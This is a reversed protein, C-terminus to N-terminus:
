IGLTAFAEYVSDYGEKQVTYVSVGVTDTVNSTLESINPVKIATFLETTEDGKKLSENYGYFYFSDKGDEDSKMSKLLTWNTQDLGELTVMDYVNATSEGGLKMTETPVAVKMICWAEYEASSIFRPNKPIEQNPMLEKANEPNWQDEEIVGVKEDDTENLKGALVTFQNETTDTIGSYLAYAGGVAGGCTLIGCLALMALKSKKMKQKAPDLLM